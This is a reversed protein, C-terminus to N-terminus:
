NDIRTVSLVKVSSIITLTIYNDIRPGEPDDGFTTSDVEVIQKNTNTTRAYCSAWAIGGELYGPYVDSIFSDKEYTIEYLGTHIGSYESINVNKTSTYTNATKLDLIENKIHNIKNELYNM